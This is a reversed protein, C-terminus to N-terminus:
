NTSGDIAALAAPDYTYSIKPPVRDDTSPGGDLAIRISERLDTLEALLRSVDIGLYPSPYEGLKEIAKGLQSYAGRPNSRERHLLGAAAHIIGQLFRRPEGRLERWIEEISDHCAFFEGENFQAIGEEFTKRYSM